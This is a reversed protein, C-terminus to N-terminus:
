VGEPGTAIGHLFIDAVERPDPPTDADDRDPRMLPHSLALVLAGLMSAAREPPVKLRDADTALVAALATNEVVRHEHQPGRRLRGAAQRFGLAFMLGFVRRLRAQLIAVAECVRDDLDLAPDISELARYSATPDFTDDLVADILEDKSTFVRFITGEAIGAAEAIERTSIELGRERLLPATAEIIAARREDPPLPNARVV